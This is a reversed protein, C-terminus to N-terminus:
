LEENLSLAIENYNQPDSEWEYMNIWLSNFWQTQIIM